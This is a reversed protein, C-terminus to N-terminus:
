QFIFARRMKTAVPGGDVTLREGRLRGGVQDQEDLLIVKLGAAAATTAAMLGAPGAGVVLLDCHRHAREYRDPDAATSARGLGAARRIWRECFM